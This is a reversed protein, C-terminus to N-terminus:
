GSRAVIDLIVRYLENEAEAETIEGIIAAQSLSDGAGLMGWLSAQQITQSGCFPSLITQCKEIYSLQCDRKLITPEPSGSLAALVGAMERGETLICGIYGSAVVKARAELDPPSDAIAADLIATERTDFERYLAALLGQRSGFHDYVVPKTVGAAESLRGLTLADTGEEGILKWSVDLLQRLREERQLRRRPATNAPPPETSTSPM